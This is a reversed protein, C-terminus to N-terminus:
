RRARVLNVRAPLALGHATEFRAVRRCAADRCAERLAPALRALVRRTYPAGRLMGDVFAQASAFHVGADDQAAEVERFGGSRVLDVLCQPDALAFGRRPSATDIGHAELAAYVAVHGPMEELPGWTSLVLRGAPVLVRRLEALAAGPDAVFQLGQLCLGADFAADPLPLALADACVLDLAADDEGLAVRRAVALMGADADIGVVRGDRGACGAALRAGIATGCAVDVVAEGRAVAALALAGRTSPLFLGPVLLDEYAQAAEVDPEPVRGAM